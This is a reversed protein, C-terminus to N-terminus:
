FVWDRRNRFCFKAGGHCFRRNRTHCLIYYLTNSYKISYVFRYSITVVSLNQNYQWASCYVCEGCGSYYYLQNVLCAWERREKLLATVTQRTPCFCKNYRENSPLLIKKEYGRPSLLTSHQKDIGDGYMSLVSLYTDNYWMGILNNFIKNRYVRSFQQINNVSFRGRVAM